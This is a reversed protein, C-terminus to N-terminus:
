VLTEEGPYLQKACDPCIGHSFKLDLHSDLYGEIQLWLDNDRV